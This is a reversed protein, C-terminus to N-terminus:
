HATRPFARFHRGGTGHVGCGRGRIDAAPWLQGDARLPAFCNECTTGDMRTPRPVFTVMDGTAIAATIGALAETDTAISAM